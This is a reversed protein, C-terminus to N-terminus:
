AAALAAAVKRRFVKAIVEPNPGFSGAALVDRRQVKVFVVPQPKTKAAQGEKGDENQAGKEQEKEKEKGKKEEEEGGGGRGRGEEEGGAARERVASVIAEYEEDSFGGGFFIAQPVKRKPPDTATANTGLGSTPLITLNGAVLAPLEALASPLTLCCHVVEIDPLLKEAVAEAIKPDKGYTAVPIPNTPSAM